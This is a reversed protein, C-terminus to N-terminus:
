RLDPNYAWSVFITFTLNELDDVKWTSCGCMFRDSLWEMEREYVANADEYVLTLVIATSNYTLSVFDGHGFLVAASMISQANLLAANVSVEKMMVM